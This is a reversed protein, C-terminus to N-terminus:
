EAAGEEPLGLEKLKRQLTRRSIGLARAAHTRNQHERALTELIHHKELAELTIPDGSTAHAARLAHTPYQPSGAAAGVVGGMAERLATPLDEVEILESRSFIVMQEVVNRLERINGPWPHHLLRELAAPAIKMPGRDNEKALQQLFHHALPPIDEPRERLPPLVIRVVNLRYYLDERFRRGAVEEALDKNTATVLRIDISQAHTSGVRTIERQELVRLLKVQVGLPIEGIEDLFVTGGDASEFHGIRRQVAGTFAGKESGFLESEMLTEPIAACHIPVFAGGARPSNFHIARAILEKGTGSEGEILVSARSNAALRAHEIVANMSRSVGVVGEFRFRENLLGELHENRTRLARVEVAKAVKARLELLNVPKTLYDWAGERMAEVATEITGYATVVIAVPAPTQATAARVLELGDVEPMKLDTLLVDVRENRLVELGAKGGPATLLRYPQRAFGMRYGELNSADDDVILITPEKSM